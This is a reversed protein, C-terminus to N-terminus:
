DKAFSNRLKGKAGCSRFCRKQNMPHNPDWSQELIEAYYPHAFIDAFSHSYMSNWQLGFNSEIFQRFGTSEVQYEDWFFCCPWVTGNSALFFEGEHVLKCSIQVGQTEGALINKYLETYEHAQGKQKSVAYDTPTVAQQRKTTPQVQWDHVSNKAARRVLFNFGMTKALERAPEKDQMNHDFEIYIWSAKGGADSYAQMNTQIRTFDTNVRYLHNTQALGDVAFRLDVLGTRKSLEGLQAWWAANRLGGNTSIEVYAGKNVFWETIELMKPHILPDGLVGCLKVKFTTLDFPLFNAYIIEEPIDLLALEVQGQIMMTRRCGPCSANCRSSLEIEVRNIRM